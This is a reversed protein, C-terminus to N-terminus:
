GPQNDAPVRRVAHHLLRRTPLRWCVAPPMRSRLSVALITQGTAQGLRLRSSNRQPPVEVDTRVPSESLRSSSSPLHNHHRGMKRPSSAHHGSLAQGGQWALLAFLLGVVWATRRIHPQM